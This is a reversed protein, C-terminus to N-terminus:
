LLPFWLHFILLLSLATQQFVLEERSYSENILPKKKIETFYLDNKM